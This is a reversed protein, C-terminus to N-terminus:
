DVGLRMQYDEASPPKAETPITYICTFEPDADAIKENIEGLSQMIEEEEEEYGHKSFNKYVNWDEDKQGFNDDDAEKTKDTKAKKKGEDISGIDAMM